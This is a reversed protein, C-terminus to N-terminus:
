YVVGLVNVLAFDLLVLGTFIWFYAAEGSWIFVVRVFIRELVRSLGILLSLLLKLLSEEVDSFRRAQVIHVLDDLLVGRLFVVQLIELVQFGPVLPFEHRQSVLALTDFIVEFLHLQLTQLRHGTLLNVVHLSVQGSSFLLVLLGFFRMVLTLLHDQVELGTDLMETALQVLHFNLVAGAFRALLPDRINAVYGLCIQHLAQFLRSLFQLDQVSLHLFVLREELLGHPMHLPSSEAAVLRSHELVPGFAVEEALRLGRDLLHAARSSPGRYYGLIHAYFEGVVVVLLIVHAIDVWLCFEGFFLHLPQFDLVLGFHPLRLLLM